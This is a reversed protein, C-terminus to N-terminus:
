NSSCALAGATGAAKASNAAPDLAISRGMLKELAAIATERLVYDDNKLVPIIHPISWKTDMDMLNTLATSRVYEEKDKLLEVM